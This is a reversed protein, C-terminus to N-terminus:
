RSSLRWLQNIGRRQKKKIKKGLQPMKISYKSAHTWTDKIWSEIALWPLCKSIDNHFIYGSLGAELQIDEINMKILKGTPYEKWIQDILTATQKTGQIHFISPLGLGGSIIPGYRIETNIRMSLGARPLGTRMMPTIILSCEAKTLTLAPLAYEVLKFIASHM